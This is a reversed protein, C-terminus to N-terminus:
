GLDLELEFLRYGRRLLLTALGSRRAQSMAKEFDKLTDVEASNVSVIM